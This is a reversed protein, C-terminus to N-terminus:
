SRGLMRILFIWKWGLTQAHVELSGFDGGASADPSVLAGLNRSGTSRSSLVYLFM